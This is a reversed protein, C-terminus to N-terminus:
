SSIQLKEAAVAVDDDGDEDYDGKGALGREWLQRGTLKTEERASTKKKKEEAEKEERLRQEEEELEKRFGERWELFKEKNVLTGQFKRNEEEEAKAIEKERANKESTVRDMILNEAAEKMTSVLTFVMAMGLNEEISPQLAEMLHAKDEQVDFRSHKPANPPTSIELDPAVDPYAEPYSIQLILIPAEEESEEEQDIDLTITIRYSTESLDSIEDPFISDLVEREEIQDERGM